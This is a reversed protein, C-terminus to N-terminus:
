IRANRKPDHRATKENSVDEDVHGEGQSKAVDKVAEAAEIPFQTHTKLRM